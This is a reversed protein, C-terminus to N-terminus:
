IFKISCNPRLKNLRSLQDKTACNRSIILKGLKPLQYICEPLGKFSYNGYLALSELNQLNGFSEPLSLFSNNALYLSKLNVLNGIEAPIQKLGTGVLGLDTLQEMKCIINRVSDVSLRQNYSISLSKLNKLKLISPSIEELENESLQLSELSYANSLEKPIKKLYEENIGISKLSTFVSLYPALDNIKSASLGLRRINFVRDLKTGLRKAEKVIDHKVLVQFLDEYIAFDFDLKNSKVMSIALRINVKEGTQILNCIKVKFDLEM